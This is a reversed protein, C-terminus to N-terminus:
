RRRHLSGNTIDIIQYVDLAEGTVYQHLVNMMWEHQERKISKQNSEIFLEM